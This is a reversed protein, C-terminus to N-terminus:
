AALNVPAEFELVTRNATRTTRHAISSGNLAASTNGGAGEAEVSGCLLKGEIVALRISSGSNRRTVSFEGWGTANSWFCRFNQQRIRPAITVAHKSGDYRFGSLALIGTWASMARAYHHGCEAEDWPNRKEGDYRSRTGAICELGEALMGAYLMHTATSYELGTFVEAYYPCPIRPRQTKAYDCVVVAAENNLA